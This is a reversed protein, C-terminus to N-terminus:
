TPKATNPAGAAPKQGACDAERETAEVARRHLKLAREILVMRSIPDTQRLARDLTAVAEASLPRETM